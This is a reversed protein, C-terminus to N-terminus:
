AIKVEGRQWSAKITRWDPHEIHPNDQISKFRGGWILGESEAMAGFADWFGQPAKWWLKGDKMCCCDTALAYNHPSFGADACTVKEDREDVKGDRDNDKGDTPQIYLAHQEAMTRTRSTRRWKLGTAAETKKITRDVRAEFDDIMQDYFSM